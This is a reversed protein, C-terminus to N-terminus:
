RWGTITGIYKVPSTRRMTLTNTGSYTPLITATTDMTKWNGVTKKPMM